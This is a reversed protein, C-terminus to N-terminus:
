KGSSVTQTEPEGFNLIRMSERQPDFHSLKKVATKKDHFIANLEYDESRSLDDFYYKGDAKTIFTLTKNTKLNTLNVLAGKVPNEREDKVIGHVARFREDDKKHSKSYMPVPRNTPDTSSRTQAGASFSVAFCVFLSFIFLRRIM